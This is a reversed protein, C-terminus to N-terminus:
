QSTPAAGKKSRVSLSSESKGDKVGKRAVKEIENSVTNWDRPQPKAQLRTRIGTLMKQVLQSVKGTPQSAKAAAVDDSLKPSARTSEGRDIRIQTHQGGYGRAPVPPPISSTPFRHHSSTCHDSETSWEPKPLASPARSTRATPNRGRVGDFSADRILPPGPQPRNERGKGAEGSKTRFRFTSSLSNLRSKTGSKVTSQPPPDSNPYRPPPPPFRPGPPFPNASIDSFPTSSRNPSPSSQSSDAPVPHTPYYPTFGAPNVTPSDGTLSADSDSAYTPAPPDSLDLVGPDLGDADSVPSEELDADAQDGLSANPEGDDVDSPFAGPMTAAQGRAQEPSDPPSVQASLATQDASAFDRSNGCAPSRRHRSGASSSRGSSSTQERKHTTREHDWRPPWSQTATNSRQSYHNATDVEFDSGEGPSSNITQVETYATNTTQGHSMDPARVIGGMAAGMAQRANDIAKQRAEESALTHPDYRGRVVRRWYNQVRQLSIATDSLGAEGEAGPASGNAIPDEVDTGTSSPHQQTEPSDPVAELGLGRMNARLLMVSDRAPFRRRISEDNESDDAELQRARAASAAALRNARQVSLTENERIVREMDWWTPKSMQLQLGAEEYAMAGM